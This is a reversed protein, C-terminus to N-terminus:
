VRRSRFSTPAENGRSHCCKEKCDPNKCNTWIAYCKECMPRKLDYTARTGCRVCKGARRPKPETLREAEMVELKKM